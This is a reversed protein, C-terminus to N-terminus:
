SVCPARRRWRALCCAGLALLAGTAPEPIVFTFYRNEYLTVYHYDITGYVDATPNLVTGQFVVYDDDTDFYLDGWTIAIYEPLYLPPAEGIEGELESNPYLHPSTLYTGFEADPYTLFLDPDPIYGADWNYYWTPGGTLHAILESGRWDDGDPVVVHIRWSEFPDGSTLTGSAWREIYAYSEARCLASGALATVIVILHRVCTM